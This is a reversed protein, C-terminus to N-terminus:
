APLHNKVWQYFREAQEVMERAKKEPILDHKYEVENKLELVNLFQRCKEDIGPLGTSQIIQVADQHRQSKSHAGLHHVTLADASSILCHVALLCATNWAGHQLAQKMTHANETAKRLYNSALHRPVIATEVM